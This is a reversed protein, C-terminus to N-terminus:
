AKVPDQLEPRRYQRGIAFLAIAGLMPMFAVMIFVPKYSFHDVLVGTLLPFLLGSLGQSVGTLGTVRGVVKDPFLDTIAGFMHASLFNDALVAIGIMFIAATATKMSPIALSFACFLASGYMCIRRVNYMGFGCKQLWGAAWGGVVGGAGGM